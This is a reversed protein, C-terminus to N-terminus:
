YSAEIARIRDYLMQNVPCSLGHKAGLRLITGSFLEVETPRKALVDQRMSPMGDPAFTELLPLWGAVADAPLPHGELASLQIVEEMAAMMTEKAEGEPVLGGYPVDFVASAQNLGVNIMLKYWQKFLMDERVEVTIGAKTLCHAVAELRETLQGDREGLQIKGRAHCTLARGVRTADTDTSVEWLVQGPWRQDLMEESVIGNLLSVLITHQDIAPAAISMADELAGYKVGFIVLDVPKAEEPTAYTFDVPEGNFTVGEKRYRQIRDPDALVTLEVEPSRSLPTGFLIGLAGLGVLAVSHITM